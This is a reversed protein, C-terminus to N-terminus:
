CFDGRPVPLLGLHQNIMAKQSLLKKMDPASLLLHFNHLKPSFHPATDQKELQEVDWIGWKKTLNLGQLSLRSLTTIEVGLKNGM